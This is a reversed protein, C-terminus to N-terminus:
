PHARLSSSTLTTSEWLIFGWAGEGGGRIRWPHPRHHVLRRQPPRQTAPLDHPGLQTVKLLDGPQGGDGELDHREAATAVRSRTARKGHQAESLRVQRIDDVDLLEGASEVQFSASMHVMVHLDHVTKAGIGQSGGLGRTKEPLDDPFGLSRHPDIRWCRSRLTPLVGSLRM